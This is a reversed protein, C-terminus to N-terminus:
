AGGRRAHFRTAPLDPRDAYLARLEDLGSDEGYKLLALAYGDTLAGRDPNRRPSRGCTRWGPPPTRGRGERRRGAAPGVPRAALALEEGQSRVQDLSSAAPPPGGGRRARRGRGRCIRRRPGEYGGSQLLMVATGTRAERALTPGFGEAYDVFTEALGRVEEAPRNTQIARSMLAPLAELVAPSYPQAAATM